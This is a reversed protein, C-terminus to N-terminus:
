QYHIRVKSRYVSKNKALFITEIVVKENIVEVPLMETPSAAEITQQWSNTSHPIVFGFQFNWEEIVQTDLWVRQLLRFDRIEEVSSFNIERAVVRCKLLDKPLTETKELVENDWTTCHWFVRGTDGDKMSMSNIKFGAMIRRAEPDDAVGLQAPVPAMELKGKTGANRGDKTVKKM